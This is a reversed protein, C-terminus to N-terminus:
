ANTLGAIAAGVLPANPVRTFECRVGHRELLFPELYRLTKARLGKLGYFTTGDATVCIPRRPDRGAGSQLTISALSAATLKAAREVLREALNYAVDFAEATPLALAIPGPRGAAHSLFISLDRTDIPPLRQILEATGPPFLGDIAAKALVAGFLGGLYAGSIM